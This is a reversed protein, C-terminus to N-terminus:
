AGQNKTTRSYSVNSFDSGPTTPKKLKPLYKVLIEYKKSSDTENDCSKLANYFSNLRDMIHKNNNETNRNFPNDFPKYSFTWNSTGKNIIKSLVRQLNATMLNSNNWEYRIYDLVENTFVISPITITSSGKGNKNWYKLIRTMDEFMRTQFDNLGKIDSLLDFTGTSEMTREENNKGKVVKNSDNYITFDFHYEKNSNSSAFDIAIAYSRYKVSPDDKISERYAYLSQHLKDKFSIIEKDSYYSNFKLAVDIDYKKDELLVNTDQAYSGIYQYEFKLGTDKAIYNIIKNVRNKLQEKDYHIDKSLCLLSDQISNLKDTM